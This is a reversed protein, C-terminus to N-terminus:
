DHLGRLLPEVNLNWHVSWTSGSQSILEDLLDCWYSHLVAVILCESLHRQSNCYHAVITIWKKFGCFSMQLESSHIHIVHHCFSIKNLLNWRIVQSVLDPFSHLVYVDCRNQLEAWTCETMNIGIIVDADSQMFKVQPYKRRWIGDIQWYQRRRTIPVTTTMQSFVAAIHPGVFAAWLQNQLACTIRWQQCCEIEGINNMHCCSQKFWTSRSWNIAQM